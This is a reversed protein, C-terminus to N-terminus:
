RDEGNVTKLLGLMESPLFQIPYPNAQLSLKLTPDFDELNSALNDHESFNCHAAEGVVQFTVNGFQTGM